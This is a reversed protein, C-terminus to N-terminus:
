KQQLRHNCSSCQHHQRRFRFFPYFSWALLNRSRLGWCKGCCSPLQVILNEKKPSSAKEKLIFKIMCGMDVCVGLYGHIKLQFKGSSPVRSFASKTHKNRFKSNLQLSNVVTKTIFDECTRWASLLLGVIFVETSLVRHNQFVIYRLAPWVFWCGSTRSTRSPCYSTIDKDIRFSCRWPLPLFIRM